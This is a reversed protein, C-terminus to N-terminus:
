EKMKSRISILLYYFPNIHYYLFSLFKLKLPRNDKMLPENKFLSLGKYKLFERRLPHKCNKMWPRNAVGATFHLFFPHNRGDLFESESYFPNQKFHKYSFVFFNTVMNYNIPLVMKKDCVANILGQDHHYVNGDHDCLFKLIKGEIQDRRWSVLNILLFGSNLYIDQNSLGIAEKAYPSVDDLVGAIQTDTMELSWLNSLDDAVIGDVDMYLIRSVDVSVLSGIFLRAYAGLAITPPIQVGLKSQLNSIEHIVLSGKDKPVHFRISDIAADSLGHSLLHVTIHEFHSNKKFLSVLLIAAFKAYHNDSAIAVHMHHKEM